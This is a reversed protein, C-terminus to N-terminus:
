PADPDDSRLNIGTGVIQYEGKGIHHLRGGNPTRLTKLGEVENNAAPTFDTWIEVLYIHGDSGAAQIFRTFRQM